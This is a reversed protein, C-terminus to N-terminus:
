PQDRVSSCAYANPASCVNCRSSPNRYVPPGGQRTECMLGRGLLDHLKQKLAHEKPSRGTAYAWEILRGVAVTHEPAHVIIELQTAPGPQRAGANAPAFAAIAPAWSEYLSDATVQLSHEIGSTDRYYVTCLRAGAVDGNQSAM